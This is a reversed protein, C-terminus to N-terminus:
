ARKLEEFWIFEKTQILWHASTLFNTTVTQEKKPVGHARKLHSLFRDPRHDMLTCFACHYHNRLERYCERGCFMMKMGNYVIAKKKHVVDHHTKLSWNSIHEKNCLICLKTAEVNADEDERMISPNTAQGQFFSLHSYKHCLVQLCYAVTENKNM